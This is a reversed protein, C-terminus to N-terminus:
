GSFPTMCTHLLMMGLSGGWSPFSALLLMALELICLGESQLLHEFHTLTM